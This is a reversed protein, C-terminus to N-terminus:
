AKQCNRCEFGIRLLNSVDGLHWKKWSIASQAFHGGPEHVADPPKAVGSHTVGDVEEPM